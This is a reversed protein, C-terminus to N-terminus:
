EGYKHTPLFYLHVTVDTPRYKPSMNDIEKKKYRCLTTCLTIQFNLMPWEPPLM